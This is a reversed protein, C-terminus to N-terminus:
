RLLMPLMKIVDEPLTCYGGLKDSAAHACANHLSVAIVAAAAPNYGQALFSCVMGALVDGSGGKSLASTPNSLIFARNDPMAVVTVSDKLILVCKYEAAFQLSLTIRHKRIEDISKGCLRAFEGMHPTLVTEGERRLLNLDRSIVTLADGDFVAPLQTKAADRVASAAGDSLGLGSGCLLATCGDLRSLLTKDDIGGGKSKLPYVVASLCDSEFAGYITDPIYARVIGAGCRLAAKVALVAAGRYSLSGVVLGACGFDGKHCFDNRKQLLTKFDHSKLEFLYPNIRNLIDGGFGMDATYTVGCNQRAPYILHCPKKACLAITIDAKFAGDAVAASDAFVGSPVDLSVKQASIKAVAAFALKAASDLEGRFGIGFVADIIVDYKLENESVAVLAGIDAIGAANCEDAFSRTTPSINDNYLACTFVSAGNQKFLLSLAYGDAGNLGRGCLVLVRKGSPSGEHKEYASYAAVAAKLVLERESIGNENMYLGDAAKIQVSTLIM